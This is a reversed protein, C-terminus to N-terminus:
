SNNLTFTFRSVIMKSFCSVIIVVIDFPIRNKAIELQIVMLPLHRMVTNNLYVFIIFYVSSVAGKANM